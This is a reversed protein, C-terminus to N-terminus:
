NKKSEKLEPQEYENFNKRVEDIVDKGYGVIDSLKELIEQKTLDKIEHKFKLINPAKFEESYTQTKNMWLKTYMYDKDMRIHIQCRRMLQKATEKEDPKAFVENFFTDIDKTTTIIILKCELIKNFYRSKVSSATNNDLVKLLDALHMTSPRLDDLIICDEGKYGDFPDNTGSSVFVSYSKEKAFEKAYFTKGVGADGTIFIANMKRDVGKSKERRFQFAVDIQRKYKTYEDIDMFDYFNFERIEGNGIKEIIEKLRNNKNVEKKWDFNSIVDSEPYQYKELANKHILYSLMGAWNSKCKEIYQEKVKFWDAIYKSECAYKLRVVIHIHKRVLNGNKDIDKDHIIYAYDKISNKELAENVIKMDIKEIDQMIEFLKLKM